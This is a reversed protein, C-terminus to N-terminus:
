PITYILGARLALEATDYYFHRFIQSTGYM